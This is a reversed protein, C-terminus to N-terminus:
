ARTTTYNFSQVVAAVADVITTNSMQMEYAISPGVSGDFRRATVSAGLVRDNDYWRFWGALTGIGAAPLGVGSWEEAAAKALVGGSSDGMNLGNAPSGPTFAGGSVTLIMLLDGTEADDADAPQAGSYIHIIGNAMISKVSGVANIADALGTSLREAM